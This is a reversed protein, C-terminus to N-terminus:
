HIQKLGNNRAKTLEIAEKGTVSDIGVRIICVTNIFRTIEAEPDVGPSYKDSLLRLAAIKEDTSEVFHTKGFVIVSRFYSTFEEPIVDDKDVICLSCRPNRRLADIKHGQAASHLYIVEGDYVYNVPVAYPYDDDGSVAIVCYKGQQLIREVESHPLYQKFRRMTRAMM